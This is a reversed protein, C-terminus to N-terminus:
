EDPRKKIRRNANMDIPDCTEASFNSWDLRSPNGTITTTIAAAAAAAAVAEPQHQQKQRHQQQQKFQKPPIASTLLYRLWEHKCNNIGACMCQIDGPMNTEDPQQQQTENGENRHWRNQKLDMCESDIKCKCIISLLNSHFISSLEPYFVVFIFVLESLSVCVCERACVCVCFCFVGNRRFLKSIFRECFMVFFVMCRICGRLIQLMEM